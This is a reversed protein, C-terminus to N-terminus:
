DTQEDKMEGKLKEVALKLSEILDDSINTRNPNKILKEINNVAKEESSISLNDQKAIELLEDINEEWNCTDCLTEKCKTNCNNLKCYSCMGNNNCYHLAVGTFWKIFERATMEKETTSEKNSKIYPEIDKFDTLGDKVNEVYDWTTKKYKWFCIVFPYRIRMGFPTSLRTGSNLWRWGQEDAYEFLINLEKANNLKINKGELDFM